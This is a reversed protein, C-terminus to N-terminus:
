VYPRPVHSSVYCPLQLQHEGFCRIRKDVVCVSNYCSCPTTLTLVIHPVGEFSSQWNSRVHTVAGRLKFM